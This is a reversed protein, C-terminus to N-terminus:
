DELAKKREIRKVVQISVEYLALLPIAILIQSFADPPTIIGALIVIIAISHRRYDKLFKSSILGIQGLVHAAVPMEFVIGVPLTFMVLYSIYSSLAPLATVGPLEYGALFSIAFPAIIFYGFAVGFLFLGSCILVVYRTLKQEKEYLGPKVFRWIEWFIYPFSCILGLLASVKMHTLFTEGFNPTIFNFAPPAICLADGMGAYNSFQCLLRYTIFDPNKPGFIVTNFVFDKMFFLTVGFVIIAAASRFIHWRLEEIHDFFSM